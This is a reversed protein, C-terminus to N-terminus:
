TYQNSRDFIAFISRKNTKIERRHQEIQKGFQEDFKDAMAYGLHQLVDSVSKGAVMMSVTGVFLKSADEKPVKIHQIKPLFPNAEQIKQYFNFISPYDGAQHCEVMHFLLPASIENYTYSVPNEKEFEGDQGYIAEYIGVNRAMAPSFIVSPSLDFVLGEKKEWKNQLKITENIDFDAKLNYNQERLASMYIYQKWSDIENNFHNFHNPILSIDQSKLTEYVGLRSSSLYCSCITQVTRELTEAAEFRILADLKARGSLERSVPLTLKGSVLEQHVHKRHQAMIDNIYPAPKEQMILDYATMEAKAALLKVFTQASIKKSSSVRQSLQRAYQTILHLNHFYGTIIDNQFSQEDSKSAEWENRKLWLLTPTNLDFTLKDGVLGVSPQRGFITNFFNIKELISDIIFQFAFTQKFDNMMRYAFINEPMASAIFRSFEYAYNNDKEMVNSTHDHLMIESHTTIHHWDALSLDNYKAYRGTLCTVKNAPERLLVFPEASKVQIRASSMTEFNSFGIQKFLWVVDSVEVGTGELNLIYEGLFFEWNEDKKLENIIQNIM